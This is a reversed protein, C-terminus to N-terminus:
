LMRKVLNNIKEERNGFAGKNLYPHRKKEFGLKPSTLKFPWLFNNAQKFNPGVTVLEHILEEVCTIGKSGLGKEIVENTTIPIRQNNLKGYGRKYVLDRITKNSPYGYTVYPEVRRLMNWTAKNLKVLTANHLQRLRLLQM